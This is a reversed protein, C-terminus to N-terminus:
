LFGKPKKIEAFDIKHWDLVYKSGHLIKELLFLNLKISMFFIEIKIVVKPCKQKGNDKWWLKELFLRISLFFSPVNATGFNHTVIVGKYKSHTYAITLRFCLTRYSLVILNM